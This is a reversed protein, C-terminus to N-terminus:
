LDKDDRGGAVPAVVFCVASVILVAFWFLAWEIPKQSNIAASLRESPGYICAGLLCLAIGRQALRIEKM